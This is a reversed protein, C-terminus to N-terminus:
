GVVSFKKKLNSVYLITIICESLHLASFVRLAFSAVKM